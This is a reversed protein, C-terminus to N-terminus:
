LSERRAHRLEDHVHRVVLRIVRIAHLTETRVDYGFVRNWIFSDIHLDVIESALYLDITERAIGLERAWAAPDQRHDTYTIQM